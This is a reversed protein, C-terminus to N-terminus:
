RPEFGDRLVGAEGAAESFIARDDEPNLVVSGPAATASAEIQVFASTLDVRGRLLIEAQAGAALGSMLTPSGSGGQAPCSGTCTWDLELLGSTAFARLTVAALDVPGNNRVLVRYTRRNADPDPQLREINVQLDSGDGVVIRFARATRDRGGNATGGTDIALAELRASGANGSLRYHLTGDPSLSVDSVVNAPDLLEIVTLAVSQEAELPGPTLETLFGPRQRIGNTGSPHSPNGGLAFDPPDNVALVNLTVTASRRAGAPDTALLELNTSGHADANPVLVLLRSADAGGLGAKLAADSILAQDASRAALRVSAAGSEADGVGIEVPGGVTDELMDVAAAATLSPSANVVVAIPLSDRAANANDGIYHARLSRTGAPLASTVCSASASGGNNSLPRESCGAIDVGGDTFRVTGSPATGTVTATLTVAEGENPAGGVPSLSVTTSPDLAFLAVDNGSIAAYRIRFSLGGISLEGGEPLNAFGGAVPDSGDNIILPMARGPQHTYGSLLALQLGAGGLAVAGNVEVADNATAGLEFEISAPAQLTLSASQLTGPSGGPALRGGGRVLADGIRGIGSVRGSSEVTVAGQTGNAVWTGQQVVTSAHTATGTYTYSAAGTKRLTGPGSIRGAYGCAAPMTLTLTAGAGLELMGLHPLDGEQPRPDASVCNVSHSGAIAITGTATRQEEVIFVGSLHLSTGPLFSATSAQEFRGANVIVADGIRGGSLNQFLPEAGMFGFPTAIVSAHLVVGGQILGANRGSSRALRGHSLAVPGRIIGTSTNNLDVDSAAQAVRVLERASQAASAVLGAGGNIVGSNTVQYANADLFAFNPRTFLYQEIVGGSDNTVTFDPAASYVEARGLTGANLFEGEAWEVRAGAFNLLRVSTKGTIQSYNFVQMRRMEDSGLPGFAGVVGTATGWNFVTIPVGSLGEPRTALVDRVVAGASINVQGTSLQVQGINAGQALTVGVGPSARVDVISLNGSCTTEGGAPVPFPVCQAHALGCPLLLLALLPRRRISGRPSGNPHLAM